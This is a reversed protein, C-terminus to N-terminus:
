EEGKNITKIAAPITLATEICFLVAVGWKFLQQAGEANFLRTIFSIIGMIVIDALLFISLVTISTMVVVFLWKLQKM